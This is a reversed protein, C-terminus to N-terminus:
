GIVYDASGILIALEVEPAVHCIILVYNGSVIRVYNLNRGTLVVKDSQHLIALNDCSAVVCELLSVNRLVKCFVIDNVNVTTTEIVVSYVILAVAMSPAKLAIQETCIFEATVYECSDDM